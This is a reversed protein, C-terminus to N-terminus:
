LTLKKWIPARLQLREIEVLVDEPITEMELVALESDEDNANDLKEQIADMKAIGADIQTRDPTRHAFM